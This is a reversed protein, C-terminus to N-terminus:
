CDENRRICLTNKHFNMAHQFMSDKECRWAGGMGDSDRQIERTRELRDTSQSTTALHTLAKKVVAMTLRFRPGSFLMLLSLSHRVRIQHRRTDLFTSRWPATNKDRYHHM